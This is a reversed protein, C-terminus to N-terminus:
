AEQAFEYATKDLVGQLALLLSNKSNDSLTKEKWAVYGDPRVLVAGDAKIGYAEPFPRSFPSSIKERHVALDILGSTATAQKILRFEINVGTDQAIDVCIKQWKEGAYGALLVFNSGFLVLTSRLKGEDKIGVHPARTGPLAFSKRPDIDAVGDDIFDNEFVVASSRYRNFEVHVDPIQKKVGQMGLDPDSRTVYRQYGQQIM